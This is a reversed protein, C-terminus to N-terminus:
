DLPDEASAEFEIDSSRVISQRYQRSLRDLANDHAEPDVSALADSVLTVHLDRAYAEAATMAICSETSVGCIALSAIGRDGLKEALTTGHFASDRTKEVIMAGHTALGDIPAAGPTSEIAMGQGDTLMNLSWSSRDPSHVTRVEFVPVGASRAKETVANCAKVLTERHRALEADAFFDQQLDVVLLAQPLPTANMGQGHGALADKM